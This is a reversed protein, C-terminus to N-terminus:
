LMVSRTGALFHKKIRAYMEKALWFPFLPDADPNGELFEKFEDVTLPTDDEDSRPLLSATLRIFEDNNGSEGAAQIENWMQRTPNIRFRIQGEISPHFGALDIQEYVPRSATAKLLDLQTAM